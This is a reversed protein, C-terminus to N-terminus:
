GTKLYDLFEGCKISGSHENACECTGAAFLDSARQIFIEYRYVNKRRPTTLVEGLEWAPPGGM